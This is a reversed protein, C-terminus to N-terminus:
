IQKLREAQSKKLYMPLVTDANEVFGKNFLDFACIGINFSHQVNNENFTCNKFTSQLLDKHAKAGDGVFTINEYKTAIPLVTEIDDALYDTIRSYDKNYISFYVQNNNANILTCINNTPSEVNHALCDLSSVGIVPINLVEALAKATAIGIRIGTFSGPGKNCAILDIQELSINAEIFLEQVLPMLNESHTKGNDLLLEKIVANNELVSVSCTDSSTDISLIKM